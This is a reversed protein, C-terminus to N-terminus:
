SPSRAAAKAAPSRSDICRDGERRLRGRRERENRNLIHEAERLLRIEGARDVLMWVPPPAQLFWRGFEEILRAHTRAELGQPLASPEARLRGAQLEVLAEGERVGLPQHRIEHPQADTM